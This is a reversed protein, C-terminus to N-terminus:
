STEAEDLCAVSCLAPPSCVRGCVFCLAVYRAQVEAHTPFLPITM